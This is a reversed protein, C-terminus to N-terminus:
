QPQVLIIDEAQLNDRVFLEPTTDEPIGELMLAAKAQDFATKLNKGFGISSYFQSAFILAADDGISTNMGIAADVHEVIHEAQVSSFCANFFILRVKDSLTMITQTMAEKTVLKSQGNANEFALDGNSAGHGSFHIIDPNVENIAQLLDSTRVAWRTEFRITDRYDSKRIMEQISRSEADLRLSPTDIPNSALFLVTIIEPLKQLEEIQNQMKSQREEHVQVTKNLESIQRQTKKQMETEEKMRQKHAKDEEREVKKQEDSLEKELKSIKKEIDAIKNEATTIEKEARTIENQKSKITSANKTRKIAAKATDIKRRAKAIKDKEKAKDSSLKAIGDRKREVNKRYTDILAMHVEM